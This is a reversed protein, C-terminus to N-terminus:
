ILRLTTIGPALQLELRGQSTPLQARDRELADCLRAERLAGSTFRVTAQQVAGHNAMRVITGAGRWAPKVAMIQVPDSAGEVRVCGRVLERAPEDSAPGLLLTADFRQQAAQPIRAPFGILPQWGHVRELAANRAVICELVGNTGLAVASPIGLELRLNELSVFSSACWFTPGYLRQGARRVVGGPVDMQLGSAREISPLRLVVSSAAPAAVLTRIEIRPRTADIRIVRQAPKVELTSHFTAVVAGEIETVTLQAFDDRLKRERFVGGALEHGMRWGGGSDDYVAFQLADPGLLPKGTAPDWCESLVGGACEELVLCLSPTSVRLVGRELKCRVRGESPSVQAPARLPPRVNASALAALERRVEDGLQDLWPLQEARYVREPSTGTVFDHHNAVSMRYWLQEAHGPALAEENSRAELELLDRALAHYKQKLAWRTTYFGMFTPNPDLELRPLEAEHHALLRLYDDLGANVVWTGSAPYSSRNYEDVLDVLDRIPDVFDFGIPCFLYPTRSLPSLERVYQEIRQAVQHPKRAPVALPLMMWRALGRHALLDGQGYTFANWHTLLKSGDPRTWVFDLSRHQKLLAEASSGPLPFEDRPRADCGPYYMGDLRAFCAGTVGAANLLTPLAPSHGFSDPLYAIRPECSIGRARLWEQGCLYDRLVLEPHTVLTDPTTVASGTLRLRGSNLLERIQEHRGPNREWYMALFFISELSYVRRPQRELERLARDLIRRVVLGYYEKSTLLWNPDWHSSEGLILVRTADQPIGLAQRTIAETQELPTM